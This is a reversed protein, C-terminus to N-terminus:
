RGQLMSTRWETPAVWHDPTYSISLMRYMIPVCEVLVGIRSDM